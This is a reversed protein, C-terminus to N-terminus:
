SVLDSRAASPLDAESVYRLRCNNGFGPVGDWAPRVVTREFEAGAAVGAQRGLDEYRLVHHTNGAKRRMRMHAERVAEARAAQWAQCAELFEQWEM